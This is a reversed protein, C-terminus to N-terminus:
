RLIPRETAFLRRSVESICLETLKPIHRRTFTSTLGQSAGVAGQVSSAAEQGAGPTRQLRLQRLTAPDPRAGAAALARNNGNDAAADADADAGAGLRHGQGPARFPQMAARQRNRANGRPQAFRPAGALPGGLPLQGGLMDRGMFGLLGGGMGGDDDDGEDGDEPHDENPFLAHPFGPRHEDEPDGDAAPMPWDRDQQPRERQLRPSQDDAEDMAEPRDAAAEAGGLRHGGALFPPMAAAGRRPSRRPGTAAARTAATGRGVAPSQQHSAPATPTSSTPLQAVLNCRGTLQLQALTKDMDDETYAQIHCSLLQCSLFFLPSDVQLVPPKRCAENLSM